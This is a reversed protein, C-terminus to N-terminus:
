YRTLRTYRVSYPIYLSEATYATRFRSFQDLHLKPNQTPHILPIHIVHPTPQYGWPFPVKPTDTRNFLM